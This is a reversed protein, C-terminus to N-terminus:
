WIKLFIYKQIKNVIIREYSEPCIISTIIYFTAYKIVNFILLVLVSV